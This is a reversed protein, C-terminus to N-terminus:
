RCGLGHKLIQVDRSRPSWGTDPGDVLHHAALVDSAEPSPNRKGSRYGRLRTSVFCRVVRDTFQQSVRIRGCPCPAVVGMCLRAAPRVDFGLPQAAISSFMSTGCHRHHIRKKGVSQPLPAKPHFYLRM